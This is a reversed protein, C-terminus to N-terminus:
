VPTLVPEGALHRRANEMFMQMSAEVAQPSWGAVHPSLLVNDCALLERPPDPEGEYVDLGAGRITRNRLAQALAATDVVSGRAINILYGDAGLAKLVPAGVLHRTEPGGPTAVVLVDSWQALAGADDFRPYALEPRASRSCYGVEMEFAVGRLAIKRGIRGFGLIGLRYGTVGPPVPMADRWVGDRCARDLQPLGRVVSLLLALAHDAVSSDNTGAGNVVTVGRSRAHQLPVNEYGVGMAGILTLGPLRDIEAATIGTSGNTLVVRVRPDDSDLAAARAAPDSREIVEFTEALRSVKDRPLRTLILLVPKM